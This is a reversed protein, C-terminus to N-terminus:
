QMYQLAEQDDAQNLLYISQSAKEFDNVWTRRCWLKATYQM